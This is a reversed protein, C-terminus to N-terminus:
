QEAGKKFRLRVEGTVFYQAGVVLGTICAWILVGAEVINTRGITTEIGNRTWDNFADIGLVGVAFTPIWVLFILAFTTAVLINGIRDKNAKNSDKPPEVSPPTSEEPPQPPENYSSM